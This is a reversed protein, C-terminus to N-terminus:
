KKPGRLYQNFDTDTTVVIRTKEGSAFAEPYAELIRFMRFFEPDQSYAEAYVRIAEADGEGRIGQAKQYADALIIRKEKDTEARIKRAEEEGESRYKKAIREREARMRGYVHQANEEPLDARKIRVDIIEIGYENAKQNAVQTIEEMIRERGVSITEYEHTETTQIPNNTSRVIEVLDYRGLQERIVSYIIDDLRTQAGNETRVRQLFLLPDKIRWRAYNDIVLHKKDKTVIDTPASDYELIRDEFMKVSQIFPIKVYLGPGGTIEIQRASGTASSDAVVSYRERMEEVAQSDESGPRMSGVIMKVPRGFQTVVAQKTEDVVYLSSCSGILGALGIM